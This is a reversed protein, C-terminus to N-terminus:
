MPQRLVRTLRQYKEALRLDNAILRRLPTAEDASLEGDLLRIMRILNPLATQPM